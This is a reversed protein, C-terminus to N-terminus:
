QGGSCTREWVPRNVRHTNEDEELCSSSIIRRKELVAGDGCLICYYARLLCAALMRDIKIVAKKVLSNM